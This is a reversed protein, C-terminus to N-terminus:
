AVGKSETAGQQGNYRGRKAYSQASPVPDCRQFIAQGIRMGARLVISSRQLLNHIELTLQGHFGADVFCALAHGLGARGISSRLRFECALDNPMRFTEITHALAFQGPRLTYGHEPIDVAILKPGHGRAPDAITYPTTSLDEVMLGSGLRLDISVSGVHEVPADIVGDEVLRVLADYSLLSKSM